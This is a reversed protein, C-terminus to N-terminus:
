RRFSKFTGLGDVGPLIPAIMVNTKIGESHLISVANIREEIPPAGFEFIERIKEDSTPISICM